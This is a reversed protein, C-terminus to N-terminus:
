AITRAASSTRRRGLTLLGGICVIALLCSAPEAVANVHVVGAMGGATGDGNDFGHLSCYYPFSGAQSFTHDFTVTPRGASLVGSNWSEALGAVSTTSHFSSDWIWHVTDGVNITPDFHPGAASASFDFNIVHVDVVAAGAFRPRDGLPLAIAACLIAARLGPFSPAFLRM